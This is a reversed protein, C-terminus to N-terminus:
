QRVASRLYLLERRRNSTRRWRARQKQTPQWPLTDREPASDAPPAVCPVTVPESAVPKPTEAPASPERNRLWRCYEALTWNSRRAVPIM